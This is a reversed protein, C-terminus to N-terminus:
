AINRLEMAQGLDVSVLQSVGQEGMTVGYLRNVRAMTMRHHTIIVFRTSASKAIEEVMTCFRDVNADDLPADVEDLVCIPAPNTLFVGFLLALATLAQEGGSLLSLVQLRKGPPSAMIEIGAELPDDSETLTLHARGGGFLRVFLEQFHKDVEKFSDLLRHRGERNLDNIGRRLKDIARLLDDRELNLGEIQENLEQSEVEARLNVPGMNERERLLREVRNEANDLEPLVSDERLQAIDRLAEPGCNLRDTMREILSDLTQKSQEVGSQARVREERVSALRAESERLAKDTEALKTESEILRDAAEKRKEEAAEIKSELDLRQAEIADPQASLRAQEETLQQQREELQDLQAEARKRRETWSALEDTIVQLRQARQVAQKQLGDFASQADILLTRADTALARLRTVSERGAALEPLAALTKAAEVLAAESETLDNLVRTSAERQAAIKSDTEATKQRLESYQNQTRTLHAEAARVRDKAESEHSTTQELRAKATSQKDEADNTLSEARILESRVSNLRNRQELRVAAAAPADSSATYGDWRWFGGDLAVLRQGQKLEPALRRGTESDNVVGVQSLRRVLAASGSVYDSLPASGTPLAPSSQYAPVGAWHVPASEDTAASLDDGLATGLAGEYGIQVNLADVLPPWLDPDGTELLEALAREEASLRTFDALTKRASEQCETLLQMADIRETEATLALARAEDLEKTVQTLQNTAKKLDGQNQAGEELAEIHSGLKEKEERLRGVRTELEGNRRVLDGRRAEDAALQEMASSAEADQAEFTTRAAELERSATELDDNHDEGAGAIESRELELRANAANTDNVLSREREMDQQTQHLRTITEQRAAELRSEEQVLNERAMTLRQLAAAAEAEAQRRNPLGSATEAQATAAQSTLRTMEGVSREAEELLRQTAAMEESAHTWRILFLTGEAKRIHDNLNRYRTAQRVQKRLSQMQADLTIMIDDLRELNTEAGRLRLEAEHRRSHLGTIGAAEELLKRRDTPKASVVRGIHGQSVLATSRAGSAQDAFLLQVDRARVDRANVKYNSGKEREIRRTVELDDYDNFQAPATRDTNDLVLGVEAINRAPRNASGSFIVDDMESGRMQKASTEGMVWKLGEVLNSKGCGNPGVVGTVGSEIVLETPDVFSKFGSLRLKTFQM